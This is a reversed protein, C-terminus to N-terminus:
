PNTEWVGILSLGLSFFVPSPKIQIWSVQGVHAVQQRLIITYLSTLKISIIPSFELRLEIHSLKAYIM